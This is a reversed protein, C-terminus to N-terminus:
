QSASLVLRATPRSRVTTRCQDQGAGGRRRQEGRFADEDEERPCSNGNSYAHDVTAGPDGRGDRQTMISEAYPVPPLLLLPLVKEYYLMFTGSQEALVTEIGVDVTRM